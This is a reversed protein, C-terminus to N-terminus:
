ASRLAFRRSAQIRDPRSRYRHRPSTALWHSDTFQCGNPQDGGFLLGAPANPYQKSHIGAIFAALNFQNGRCQKDIAPLDPEWRAGLNITLRNTVRWSDQAYVGVVTQRMYDSLANGQNM